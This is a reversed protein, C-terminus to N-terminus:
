EDIEGKCDGLRWINSVEDSKVRYRKVAGDRYGGESEISM